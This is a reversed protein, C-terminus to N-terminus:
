GFILPLVDAADCFGSSDGTALSSHLPLLDFIGAMRIPSTILQLFAGFVM